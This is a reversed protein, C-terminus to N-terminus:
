ETGDEPAQPRPEPGAGWVQRPIGTAVSQRWRFQLARGFGGALDAADPTLELVKAHQGSMRYILRQQEETLEIVIPQEQSTM